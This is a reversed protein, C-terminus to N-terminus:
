KDYVVHEFVEDITKQACISHVKGDAIHVTGAEGYPLCPIEEGFVLAFTTSCKFSISKGCYAYATLYPAHIHAVANCDPRARLAAEHLLYESSRKVSGGVQEGDKVVAIMDTDLFCKRTGSPTIYLEDTM